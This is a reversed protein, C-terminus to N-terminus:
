SAKKAMGANRLCSIYIPYIARLFALEKASRRRAGRKPIIVIDTMELCAMRDHEDPCCLKGRHQVIEESTMSPRTSGTEM